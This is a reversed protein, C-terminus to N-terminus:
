FRDLQPAMVGSRALIWSYSLALGHVSRYDQSYIDKEEYGDSYGQNGEAETSKRRNPNQLLCRILIETCRLILNELFYLQIGLIPHLM